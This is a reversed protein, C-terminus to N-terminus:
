SAPSSRKSSDENLKREFFDEDWKAREYDERSWELCPGHHIPGEGFCLICYIWSM